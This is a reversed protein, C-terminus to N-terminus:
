LGVKKRESSDVSDYKIKECYCEKKEVTIKDQADSSIYKAMSSMLKLLNLVKVAEEDGPLDNLIETEISKIM